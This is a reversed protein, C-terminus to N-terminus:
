NTPLLSVLCLEVTRLIVERRNLVPDVVRITHESVDRAVVVHEVLVVREPVEPPVHGPTMSHGVFIVKQVPHFLWYCEHLEWALHYEAATGHHIDIISRPEFGSCRRGIDQYPSPM